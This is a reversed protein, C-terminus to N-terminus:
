FDIVFDSCDDVARVLSARLDKLSVGIFEALQSLQLDIESEWNEDNQM